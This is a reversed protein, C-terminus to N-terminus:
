QDTEKVHILLVSSCCTEMHSNWTWKILLVCFMVIKRKKIFYYQLGKVVGMLVNQTIRWTEMLDLVM